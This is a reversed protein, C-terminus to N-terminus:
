MLSPFCLAVQDSNSTKYITVNRSKHIHTQTHSQMVYKILRLIHM